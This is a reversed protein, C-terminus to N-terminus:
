KDKNLVEIWGCRSGPWPYEKSIGRMALSPVDGVWQSMRLRPCGNYVIHTYIEDAILFLDHQRAIEAIEELIERPYM